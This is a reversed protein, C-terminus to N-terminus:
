KLGTAAFGNNSSSAQSAFISVSHAIALILFIKLFKM